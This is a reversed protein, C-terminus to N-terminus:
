MEDCRAKREVFVITLSIVQNMDHAQFFQDVLLTFLKDIKQKDNVKEFTQIVNTTPNDSKWGENL